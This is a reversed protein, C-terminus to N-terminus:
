KENIVITYLRIANKNHIINNSINISNQSDKEDSDEPDGDISTHADQDDDNIDDAKICDSEDDDHNENLNFRLYQKIIEQSENTFLGKEFAYQIYPRQTKLLGSIGESHLSLPGISETVDHSEQQPAITEIVRKCNVEMRKARAKKAKRKIQKQKRKKSTPKSYQVKFIRSCKEKLETLHPPDHYKLGLELPSNAFKVGM